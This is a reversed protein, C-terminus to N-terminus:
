KNIHNVYNKGGPWIGLEKLIPKMQKEMHPVIETLFQYANRQKDPKTLPSSEWDIAMEKLTATSLGQSHFHHHENFTRHLKRIESHTLNTNWYMFLKDLDHKLGRKTIRHTLKFETKLFAIKHKIIQRTKTIEM